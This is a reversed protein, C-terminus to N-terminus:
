EIHKISIVTDEEIDSFAIKGVVNDIEMPCLGLGPRKMILDSAQIIAGKKIDRSAVISRRANQVALGEHPTPQKINIDGWSSCFANEIKRFEILDDRDFAHYHDNGKLMKDYTFHKEIITGGIALSQMLAIFPYNPLTHDSYGIEHEPFSEKLDLMMGMYADTLPTPYNLVCHLLSVKTCGNEKLIDIAAGIENKTSAGTSLIIPKKKRAVARLLPKNTIDASAIKYRELLPDMQEVADLDFPTTLFEVGLDDCYIKLQEYEKLGFADFKKFLEYQSQTPESNQDWYAPSKKSALKDAKYTQFKVCDAGAEYADTILQKAKELSGEHNVGIEAIFFCPQM